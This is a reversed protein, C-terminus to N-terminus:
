GGLILQESTNHRDSHAMLLQTMVVLRCSTSPMIDIAQISYQAKTCTILQSCCDSPLHNSIRHDETQKHKVKTV